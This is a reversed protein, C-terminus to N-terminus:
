PNVAHYARILLDVAVVFLTAVNVILGRKTSPVFRALWQLGTEVVTAVASLAATQHELRSIQAELATVRRVLDARENRQRGFDIELADIRERAQIAIARAEAAITLAATATGKIEDAAPTSM